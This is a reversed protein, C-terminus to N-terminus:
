LFLQKKKKRIVCAFHTYIFHTYRTMSLIGSLNPRVVAQHQLDLHSVKDFFAYETLSGTKSADALSNFDKPLKKQFLPYSRPLGTLLTESGLLLPGTTTPDSRM